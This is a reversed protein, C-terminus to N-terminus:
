FALACTLLGFKGLRSASFEAEREKTALICFYCCLDVLKFCNIRHRFFFLYNAGGIPFVLM